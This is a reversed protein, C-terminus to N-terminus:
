PRPRSRVRGSRRLGQVHEAARPPLESLSAYALASVATAQLSLREGGNPGEAPTVVLWASVPPTMRRGGGQLLREDEM